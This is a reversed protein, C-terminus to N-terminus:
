HDILRTLMSVIRELLATGKAHRELDILEEIRMVDVQAAFEM